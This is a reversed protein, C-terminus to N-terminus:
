LQFNTGVHRDLSLLQDFIEWFPGPRNSPTMFVPASSSSLSRIKHLFTLVFGAAM